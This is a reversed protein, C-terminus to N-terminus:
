RVSRLDKIANPFVRQIAETFEGFFGQVPEGQNIQNVYGKMRDVFDPDLSVYVKQIDNNAERVKEAIKNELDPSLM